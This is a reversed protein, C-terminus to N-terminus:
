TRIGRTFDISTRKLEQQKQAITQQKFSCPWNYGTDEMNMDGWVLHATWDSEFFTPWPNRHARPNKLTSAECHWCGPLKSGRSEGIGRWRRGHRPAPKGRQGWWRPGRWGKRGHLRPANERKKKSHSFVNQLLCSTLLLIHFCAALNRNYVCASKFVMRNSPVPLRCSSSLPLKFAVWAQLRKTLDAHPNARAILFRTM